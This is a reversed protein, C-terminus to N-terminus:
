IEHPGGAHFHAAAETPISHRPRRESNGTHWGEVHPVPPVPAGESFKVGVGIAPLEPPVSPVPRTFSSNTNTSHKPAGNIKKTKIASYTAGHFRTRALRSEETTLSVIQEASLNATNVKQISPTCDKIHSALNREVVQLQYFGARGRFKEDSVDALDFVCSACVKAEIAAGLAVANEFDFVGADDRYVANHQRRSLAQGGCGICVVLHHQHIEALQM